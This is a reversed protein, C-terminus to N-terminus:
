MLNRFYLYMLKPEDVESKLGVSGLDLWRDYIVVDNNNLIEIHFTKFIIHEKYKLFLKEDYHCTINIDSELVELSIEGPIFEGDIRSRLYNNTIM